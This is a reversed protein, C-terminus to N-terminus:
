HLFRVSSPVLGYIDLLGPLSKLEYKLYLDLGSRFSYAIFFGSMLDPNKTFQLSHYLYLEQRVEREWHLWKANNKYTTSCGTGIDEDYSLATLNGIPSERANSYALVWM